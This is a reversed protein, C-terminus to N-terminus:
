VKGLKKLQEILEDHSNVANVAYQVFESTFGVKILAVVFKLKNPERLRPIRVEGDYGSLEPKDLGCNDHPCKM